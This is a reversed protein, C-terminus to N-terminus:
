PVDFSGITCGFGERCVRMWGHDFDGGDPTRVTECERQLDDCCDTEIFECDCGCDCDVLPVGSGPDLAPDYATM